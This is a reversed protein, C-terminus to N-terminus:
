RHGHQRHCQDEDDELAKQVDAHEIRRQAAVRQQELVQEPEIRVRRDVDHDQWAHADHALHDGAERLFM